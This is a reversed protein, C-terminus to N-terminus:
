NINKKKINQKSVLYPIITTGAKPIGLSFPEMITKQYYYNRKLKLESSRELTGDIVSFYFVVM